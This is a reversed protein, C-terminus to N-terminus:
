GQGGNTSKQMTTRAEQIVMALLHVLFGEGLDIALAQAATCHDALAVLRDIRSPAPAGARVSEVGNTDPNRPTRPKGAIAVPRKTM